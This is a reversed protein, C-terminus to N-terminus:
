KVSPEDVLTQVHLEVSEALRQVNYGGELLSVIRGGATIGSADVM